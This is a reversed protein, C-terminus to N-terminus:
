LKSCVFRLYVFVGVVLPYYLWLWLAVGRLISRM